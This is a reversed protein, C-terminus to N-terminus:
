DVELDLIKGTESVCIRVTVKQDETLWENVGNDDEIWHGEGSECADPEPAPAATPTCGGTSATALLVGAVALWKM